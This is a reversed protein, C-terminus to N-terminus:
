SEDPLLACPADGVSTTPSWLGVSSPARGAGHLLPRHPSRCVASLQRHCTALPHPLPPPPAPVVGGVAVVGRCCLVVVPFFFFSFLSRGLWVCRSSSRRQGGWARPSGPARVKNPNAGAKVLVEVADMHGCFCAYHMPSDGYSDEANVDANNAVLFKIVEINGTM